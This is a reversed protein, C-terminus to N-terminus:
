CAAALAGQLTGLRLGGAPELQSWRPSGGKSDVVQAGHASKEPANPGFSGV